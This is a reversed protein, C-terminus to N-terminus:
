AAAQRRELHLYGPDFDGAAKLKDWDLAKIRRGKIELLGDGRLETLVRNVHVNSLGLADAIEGQNIPLEITHDDALGVARMKVLMECILHAIRNYAPRRGISTMWERFIASDILTNRWFGDNIRPFQRCLVRLVEHAVFGVKCPTITGISHDMTSLHLSQLDPMDGEIFFAMIQRKGKSTMKFACAFGELVVFSRSPRDGERVIDQDARIDTVQMPLNQLASREEDSLRFVSELKRV